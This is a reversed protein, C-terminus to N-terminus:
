FGPIWGGYREPKAPGSDRRPLKKTSQLPATSTEAATILDGVRVGAAAAYASLTALSIGRRGHELLSLYNVTLGLRAALDAQTLRAAQRAARLANGLVIPDIM